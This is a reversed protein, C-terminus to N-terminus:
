ALRRLWSARSRASSSDSMEVCLAARPSMFPRGGGPAWGSATARLGIPWTRRARGPSAKTCMPRPRVSPTASPIVNATYEDSTRMGSLPRPLPCMSTTLTSSMVESHLTIVGGDGSLGMRTPSPMPLMTSLRKIPRLVRKQTTPSKSISPSPNLSGRPKSTIRARTVRM